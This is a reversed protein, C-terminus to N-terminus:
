IPQRNLCVMDPRFSYIDAIATYLLQCFDFYVEKGGVDSAKAERRRKKKMLEKEEVGRRVADGVVVDDLVEVLGFAVADRQPLGAPERM